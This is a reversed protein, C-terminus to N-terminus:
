KKTNKIIKKKPDASVRDLIERLVDNIKNSINSDKTDRSSTHIKISAEAHKWREDSPINQITNIKYHQIVYYDECHPAVPCKFTYSSNGEKGIKTKKSSSAKSEDVNKRKSTKPTVRKVSYSSEQDENSSGEDTVITYSSM